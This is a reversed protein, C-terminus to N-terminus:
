YILIKAAKEGWNLVKGVLTYRWPCSLSSGPVLSLGTMIETRHKLEVM